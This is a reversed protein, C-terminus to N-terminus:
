FVQGTDTLPLRPPASTDRSPLCSEPLFAHCSLWLTPFAGPSCSALHNCTPPFHPASPVQPCFLANLLYLPPPAKTRLPGPPAGSLYILLLPPLGPFPVPDPRFPSHSCVHPRALRPASHAAPLPPKSCGFCPQHLNIEVCSLFFQWAPPQVEKGRLSFPSLPLSPRVAVGSPLYVAPWINKLRGTHCGSCTGSLLVSSYATAM